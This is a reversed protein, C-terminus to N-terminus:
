ESQARDFFAFSFVNPANPDVSVKIWANNNEGFSELRLFKPHPKRGTLIPSDIRAYHSDGHALVVPKDFNKLHKALAKNFFAFSPKTDEQLRFDLGPNAHTMIFVGKADKRKAESFTYNLWDLAAQERSDVENDHKKNRTAKSLKSFKTRGNHSGVMHITAFLIGNKMWSYNEIVQSHEEHINAQQEIRLSDRVFEAKAGTFFLQRINSLRELPDFGGALLRHCDTWENDGPTYIFAHKIKEFRTKRDELVEDACSSSGTKIDGLHVIWSLSPDANLQDILADTARDPKGLTVGYPLDGLVAFSFRGNESFSSNSFLIIWIFLANIGSRM